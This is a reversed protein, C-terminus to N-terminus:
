ILFNIFDESVHLITIGAMIWEGLVHSNKDLFGDIMSCELQLISPKVKHGAAKELHTFKGVGRWVTQTVRRNFTKNPTCINLDSTFM